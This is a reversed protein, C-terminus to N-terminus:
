SFRRSNSGANSLIGRLEAHKDIIETILHEAGDIIEPITALGEERQEYSPEPQNEDLVWCLTANISGLREMMKQMLVLDHLEIHFPSDENSREAESILRNRITKLKDAYQQIEIKSRM